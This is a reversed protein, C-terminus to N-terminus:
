REGNKWVWKAYLTHLVNCSLECSENRLVYWLLCDCVVVVVFNFILVDINIPISHIVMEIWWKKVSAVCEIEINLVCVVSNM